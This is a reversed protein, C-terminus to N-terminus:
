LVGHKNIESVLAAYAQQPDDAKQIASGVNLVDVGNQALSYADEVTVGGDWGIELGANISKILRVKELQMLSAEGGYHGLNGSFIMCHDAAELTEKVSIPVTSRQLAVGAKIGCQKVYQLLAPMNIKLEAHFIIMNPKLAALAQVHKEPHAVMAHIDTPIQQPIWLKDGIVTKTPAFEGDAVDIHIRQAFPQVKEIMAKFDAPNEALITPVIVSM